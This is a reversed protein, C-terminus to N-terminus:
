INIAYKTLRRHLANWNINLLKAAQSKNNNTDRLARLITAKEIEELDYTDFVMDSLGDPKSNSFQFHESQLESGDCLIVAREVINRLERVNGPFPYKMLDTLADSSIRSIQRGMKSSFVKMFHNTLIKVDERRERLPPVYIEFTGIRHFLDLRFDKGSKMEEVDKNTAALIRVDFNNEKQSGLKVFRRDELVRLMKIQQNIPMDGIEDLFLTGGNAVEFWGARDGIAGTFSGKIHGFFESEFLTDSVASMNVAGFYENKRPSMNHIGRAVLEKGVGSEGTIVVSTDASSAVKQMMHKVNDMQPSSSILDYADNREQIERTLAAEAKKLKSNIKLFKKTREISLKVSEYNFPKRFFDIAGLDMAENIVAEEVDEGTMIIEIGKYQDKVRKILRIGNGAPLNFDTILIDIAKGKLIEFADFPSQTIEVEFDTKLISNALRGYVRDPDVVLIKLSEKM